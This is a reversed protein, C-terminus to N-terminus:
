SMCAHRIPWGAAHTCVHRPKSELSQRTASAGSTSLRHRNMRFNPLDRAREFVMLPLHKLRGLHSSISLHRVCTRTQMATAAISALSEDCHTCSSSLSYLSCRRDLGHLWRVGRCASWWPYAPPTASTVHRVGTWDPVYMMQNPNSSRSARTQSRGSWRDQTTIRLHLRAISCDHRSVSIKKESVM